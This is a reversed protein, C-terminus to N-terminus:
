ASARYGRAGATAALSLRLKARARHLRSAVTGLPIGLLHATEALRYGEVDAFYVVARFEPSLRTLAEQIEADPLEDLVQEEASRFSSTRRQDRGPFQYDFFEGTLTEVPRSRGARYTDIWTTYMIRFLWARLKNEERYGDFRTFAKIMTEQVLDEADSRSGTIHRARRYLEDTYPLAERCFRRATATM